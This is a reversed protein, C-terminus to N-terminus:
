EIRADAWVAHDAHNNAGGDVSLRLHTAGRIDADVGVQEAHPRGRLVGSEFVTEWADGRRVEAKFSASGREDGGDDIGVIARLRSAEHLPADLRYIVM